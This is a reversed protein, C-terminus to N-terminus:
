SGRLGSGSGQVGEKLIGRLKIQDSWKDKSDNKPETM